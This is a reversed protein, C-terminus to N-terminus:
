FLFGNEVVLEEQFDTQLMRICRDDKTFFEIDSDNGESTALEKNFSIIKNNVKKILAAPATKNYKGRFQNNILYTGKTYHM